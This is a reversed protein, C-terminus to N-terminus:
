FGSSASNLANLQTDLQATDTSDLTTSASSLGAADNVPVVAQGAQQYQAQYPSPIASVAAQKVLSQTYLMYGIFTLLAVIGVVLIM